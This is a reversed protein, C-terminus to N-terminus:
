HEARNEEDPSSGPRASIPKAALWNTPMALSGAPRGGPAPAVSERSVQADTTDYSGRVQGGLTQRKALAVDAGAAYSL